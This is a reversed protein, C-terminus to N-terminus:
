QILHRDRRDEKDLFMSLKNDKNRKQAPLLPQLVANADGNDEPRKSKVLSDKWEFQKVQAATSEGLRVDILGDEKYKLPKFSLSFTEARRPNNADFVM